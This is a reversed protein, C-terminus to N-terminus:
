YIKKLDCSRNKSRPISAPGGVPSQKKSTSHSRMVVKMSITIEPDIKVLTLKTLTPLPSLHIWTWRVIKDLTCSRCIKLTNTSMQTLSGKQYFHLKFIHLLDVTHTGKRFEMESFPYAKSLLSTQFRIKVLFIM